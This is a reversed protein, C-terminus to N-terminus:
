YAAPNQNNNEDSSYLGQNHVIDPAETTHRVLAAEVINQATVVHDTKTIQRYTACELIYDGTIHEHKNGKVTM